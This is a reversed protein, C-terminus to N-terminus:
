DAAVHEIHEGTTIIMRLNKFQEAFATLLKRQKASFKERIKLRCSTSAVYKNAAFALQTGNCGLLSYHQRRLKSSV